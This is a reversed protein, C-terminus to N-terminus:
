LTEHAHTQPLGPSNGRPVAGGGSRGEGAVAIGAELPPLSTGEWGTGAGRLPAAAEGGEMTQSSHIESPKQTILIKKPQFTTAGKPQLKFPLSDQSLKRQWTM